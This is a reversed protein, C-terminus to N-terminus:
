KSEKHPQYQDLTDAIRTYILGKKRVMERQHKNAKAYALIQIVSLKQLIIEYDRKESRIYFYLAQRLELDEILDTLNKTTEIGVIRLFSIFNSSISAPEENYAVAFSSNQLEQFKQRVHHNSLYSLLTKSSIKIEVNKCGEKAVYKNSLEKEIQEKETKNLKESEEILEKFLDDAVEILAALRDFYRKSELPLEEEAKYRAKHEIEAWVHQLFTKIQIEARFGKLNERDIESEKGKPIFDLMRDHYNVVIHRGLYGFKRNEVMERTKDVCKEYDIIDKLENCLFEYIINEDKLSTLMIKLGVLDTVDKLPDKYKARKDDRNIKNKLSEPDKTRSKIEYANKDIKGDRIARKILGDIYWRLVKEFSLYYSLHKKYQLAVKQPDYSLTPDISHIGENDKLQNNELFM